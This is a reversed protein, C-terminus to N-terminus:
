FASNLLKEQGVVYVNGIPNRVIITVPNENVPNEVTGNITVKDGSQYTSKDTNAMIQTPSQAFASFLLSPIILISLISIKERTNMFPQPSKVTNLQLNSYGSSPFTPM